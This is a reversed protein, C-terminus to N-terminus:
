TEGGLRRSRLILALIREYRKAIVPAVGMFKVGNSLEQDTCEYAAGVEIIM